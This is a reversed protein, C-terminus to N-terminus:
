GSGLLELERLYSEEGRVILIFDNIKLNAIFNDLKYKFFHFFVGKVKYELHYAGPRLRLFALTQSQFKATRTPALGTFSMMAVPM